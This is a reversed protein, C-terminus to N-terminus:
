GHVAAGFRRMWELEDSDLPGRRVAELNAELQERTKPGTLVVSVKPHTLCFRYCVGADPVLGTWGRPRKLLRRWSTATYAVVSRREPEVFPFIEDEAGPHAANYRVMLVDLASGSALRGARVRNHTSVGIAHVKGEDRLAVMENVTGVTWASTVGLWHMQLVDIHDTGLVNLTREVFRRLRGGWWATTPGTAVVYRERDRRLARRLAPTVRSMRPTWYVYNVESDQLAHEVDDEEIGFSGALGLRFVRKDIGPLTRFLHQDTM